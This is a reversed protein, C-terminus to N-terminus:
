EFIIRSIKEHSIVMQKQAAALAQVGSFVLLNVDNTLATSTAVLTDNIYFRAIRSSDINIWFRYITNAAVTVGTDVTTDVGGISYIAQWTTNGDATSYRFIAKDNDAAVTPSNSTKLGAFLIIDAISASTRITSEWDVQNETGWSIVSWASQKTDTHPGIIIQDNNAGATHIELGGITASHLSDANAANTGTLEFNLNANVAISANLQPVQNFFEELYYRGPSRRFINQNPVQVGEHGAILQLQDSNTIQGTNIRKSTLSNCVPNNYDAKTFGSTTSAM